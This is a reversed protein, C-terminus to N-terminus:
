AEDEKHAYKEPGAVRVWDAVRTNYVFWCLKGNPQYVGCKDGHRIATEHTRPNLKQMQFKM